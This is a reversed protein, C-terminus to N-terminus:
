LDRHTTRATPIIRAVRTLVCVCLCSRVTQVIREALQDLIVTTKASALPKYSKLYDCAYLDPQFDPSVCSSRRLHTLASHPPTHSHHGRQLRSPPRPADHAGGDPDPCLEPRFRIKAYHSPWLVSKKTGLHCFRRPVIQM